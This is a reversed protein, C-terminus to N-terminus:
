SVLHEAKCKKCWIYLEGRVGKEGVRGLRTWYHPCLIVNDRIVAKDM